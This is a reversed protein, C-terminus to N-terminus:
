EIIAEHLHERLYYHLFRNYGSVQVPYSYSKFTSKDVASLNQWASVGDAFVGRYALQMASPENSPKYYKEKICLIGHWTRRRQYIAYGRFGYPNPWWYGFPYVGYFRGWAQISYLPMFSFFKGKAM